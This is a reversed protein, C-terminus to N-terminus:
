GGFTVIGTNYPFLYLCTVDEAGEPKVWIEVADAAATLEISHVPGVYSLCDVVVEGLTEDNNVMDEMFVTFYSIEKGYMMYFRNPIDKAFQNILKIKDSLETLAPLQSIISKNMDYLNMQVNSHVDLQENFEIQRWLNADDKIYYAEKDEVFVVTNPEIDKLSFLDKITAIVIKEKM